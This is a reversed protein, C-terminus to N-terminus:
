KLDNHIMKNTIYWPANVINRLIKSQSRQVIAINSKSACGWIEIGYIWILKIIAKYLLIKNEISLSSKRGILWYIDRSRLDIQKRKKKIHEKWNLKADLHLGVYKVSTSQPIQTNNSSM